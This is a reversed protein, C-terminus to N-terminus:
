VPERNQPSAEATWRDRVFAAAEACRRTTERLDKDGFHLAVEALISTPLDSQGELLLAETWIARYPELLQEHKTQFEAASLEGTEVLDWLEQLEDPVLRQASPRFPM